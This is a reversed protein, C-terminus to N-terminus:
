QEKQMVADIESKVAVSINGFPMIVTQLVTDIHKLKFKTKLLEFDVEDLDKVTVRLRTLIAKVMVINDSTGLITILDNVSFSIKQKPILFKQFNFIKKRFVMMLIFLLMLIMAVVIIIIYEARM